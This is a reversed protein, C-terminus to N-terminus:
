RSRSRRTPTSTAARSCRAWAAAPSSASRGRLHPQPRRRGQDRGRGQARAFTRRQTPPPPPSRRRDAPADAGAGARCAEPEARRRSAAARAAGAAPPAAARCSCRASRARRRAPKKDKDDSMAQRIRSPSSPRSAPGSRSRRHCQGARRQALTLAVLQTSRASPRGRALMRARDRERRCVGHLGDSCLLFIDGAQVEGDVRDVEVETQVGVARSLIHGMPHGVAQEPTMLGREVMEQVQSHDRSLQALKGGRLLYARSDGVWLIPTASARPRDARRRDLGDAQRAGRAEALIARNAARSRRPSRARLRADLDGAPEIRTSRRSSGAGVGM